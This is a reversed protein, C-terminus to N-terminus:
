SPMYINYQPIAPFALDNELSFHVFIGGSKQCMRFSGHFRHRFKEVGERPKELRVGIFIVVLCLEDPICRTDSLKRVTEFCDCEGGSLLRVLRYREIFASLRQQRKSLLDAAICVSRIRM